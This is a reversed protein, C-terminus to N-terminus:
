GHVRRGQNALRSVAFPRCFTPFPRLPLLATNCTTSFLLLAVKCAGERMLCGSFGPPDFVVVSIVSFYVANRSLAKNGRESSDHM